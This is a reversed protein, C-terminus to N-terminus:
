SPNNCLTGAFCLLVLYFIFAMTRKGITNMTVNNISLKFGSLLEPPSVHFVFNLAKGLATFQKINLISIVELHDISLKSKICVFAVM